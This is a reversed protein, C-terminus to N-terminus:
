EFINYTKKPIILKWRNAIVIDWNCQPYPMWTSLHLDHWFDPKVMQNLGILREPIIALKM